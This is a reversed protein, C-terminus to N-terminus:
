PAKLDFDEMYVIDSQSLRAKLHERHRSEEYPSSSPSRPSTSRSSEQRYDEMAILAVFSALIVVVDVPGGVFAVESAETLLLSGSASIAKMIADTHKTALAVLFGGASGLIALAVTAYSWGTFPWWDSLQFPVPEDATMYGHAGQALGTATYLLISWSSLQLNRAWTSCQGDKLYKEFYASVLGSLSVQVFMLLVGLSFLFVGPGDKLEEAHSGGQGHQYTIIMVGIALLCLARWEGTSLRRGLVLQSSVATALVKLQALMSFVTADIWKLVVFCILNMVLYAVAPVAMPAGRRLAQLIAQSRARVCRAAKAGLSKSTDDMAGEDVPSSLLMASVVLKIVEAVCLVSSASYSEKLIGQSYRRLLTYTCNQLCLLVLLTWKLSSSVRLGRIGPLPVFLPKDTM